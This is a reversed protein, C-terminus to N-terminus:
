AAIPSAEPTLENPPTLTPTEVGSSGDTTGSGDSAPTETSTAESIVETIPENSVPTTPVTEESSSYDIDISRSATRPSTQSTDATATIKFPTPDSSKIVYTKTCVTEDTGSGNVGDNLNLTSRPCTITGLKTDTVVLNRLIVNGTNRVTYKYTVTDGVHASTISSSGNTAVIAFSLSPAPDVIAISVPVRYKECGFGWCQTFVLVATLMSDSGSLLEEAIVISISSKVDCVHTTAGPALSVSVEMLCEGSTGNFYESDGRLWVLDGQQVALTGTNTVGDLVLKVTDGLLAQTVTQGSLEFHANVSTGTQFTFRIFTQRKVNSRVGGVIGTAMVENTIRPTKNVAYPDVPRNARYDTETFSLVASSRTCSNSSGPDLTPLTCVVGWRDSITVNTAGSSSGNAVLYVFTLADSPSRSTRDYNAAPSISLTFASFAFQLTGTDSVVTDDYVAEVLATSSFEAASLSSQFASTAEQTRICTMEDEGSGDEQDNPDLRASPCALDGFVSDTLDVDTLPTTGTNRVVYNISLNEGLSAVGDWDRGPVSVSVDVQIRPLFIAVVTTEDDQITEDEATTPTDAPNFVGVANSHVQLLPGDADTTDSSAITRSRVCKSSSGGPALAGISCRKDDSTKSTGNDDVVAVNRLTYNGTNKVTSTLTVVDGVSLLKGNTSKGQVDTSKVSIDIAGVAVTDFEATPGAQGGRMVVVTHKGFATTPVAFSGSVTGNPSAVLNSAVTRSTSATIKFLLSVTEGAQLGRIAFRTTSRAVGSSPSLKLYPTITVSVSIKKGTTQAYFFLKHKGGTLEAIAVTGAAIGGSNPQLTTVAPNNSSDWSVKIPAAKGFGSCSVAMKTGYRGSRPTVICEPGTPATITIPIAVKNGSRPATLFLKHLGVPLDAIPVPSTVSGKSDTVLSQDHPNNSSDWTVFIDEGVGFGSCSVSMTTGTPGTSPNAICVATAKVEIPSFAILPLCILVIAIVRIQRAIM